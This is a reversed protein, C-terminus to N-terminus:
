KWRWLRVLGDVGAVAASRGDPLMAAGLFGQPYPDSSYIPTGTAVDWLRLVANPEVGGAILSRGDDSLAAFETRAGQSELRKIERGSETGWLRVTGDHSSTVLTKGDRSFSVSTIPQSHGEYSRLLQGDTVDWLRLIGPGGDVSFHSAAVLREDPSLALARVQDEVGQFSRVQKGTALDWVRISKDRAGTVALRGDATMAVGWVPQTHGVLKQVEAGTAIDWVRATRDNGGGIVRKGDRSVALAWNNRGPEGITRLMKGSEVDWVTLGNRNSSLMRRGDPTVVVRNANKGWDDGPHVPFQRVVTFSAREVDRAVVAARQRVEDSPHDAAAKRLPGIAPLGIEALRKAARYRTPIDADGLDEILRHVEAEVSKVPAAPIRESGHVVALLTAAAALPRSIRGLIFLGPVKM